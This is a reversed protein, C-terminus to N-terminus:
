DSEIICAIKQMCNAAIAFTLLKLCKRYKVICDMIIWMSLQRKQISAAGYYSGKTGLKFLIRVMNGWYHRLRGPLGPWLPWVPDVRTLPPLNHRIKFYFKLKYISNSCFDNAKLWCIIEVLGYSLHFSNNMIVKYWKKM